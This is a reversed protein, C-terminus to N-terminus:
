YSLASNTVLIIVAFFPCCFDWHNSILISELTCDKKLLNFRLSEVRRYEFNQPEVTRQEECGTVQLGYGQVNFGSGRFPKM